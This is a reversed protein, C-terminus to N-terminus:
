GLGICEMCIKVAKDFVDEHGGNLVGLVIFVVALSFVCIRVSFIFKENDFFAKCKQWFSQKTQQETRMKRKPAKFLTVILCLAFSAIIWPALAKVLNLVQENLGEGTVKFTSFLVISYIATGVCFCACVSRLIINITSSVKIGEFRSKRQVFDARAPILESLLFGVLVAVLYIAFPIALLSVRNKVVDLAYDAYYIDACECILIVGLLITFFLMFIQYSIRIKWANDKM